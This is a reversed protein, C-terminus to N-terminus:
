SPKVAYSVYGVLRQHKHNFSIIALDQLRAREIIALSSMGLDRTLVVVALLGLYSTFLLTDRPYQKTPLYTAEGFEGVHFGRGALKVDTYNSVLITHRLM